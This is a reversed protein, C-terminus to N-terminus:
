LVVSDMSVSELRAPISQSILEPGTKSGTELGTRSGTELGTRPSNFGNQELSPEAISRGSHDLRQGGELLILEPAQSVKLLSVKRM